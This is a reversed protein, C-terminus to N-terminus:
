LIVLSGDSAIDIYHGPYIRVFREDKGGDLLAQLFDSNGSCETYPLNAEKAVYQAQEQLAKNNINDWVILRASFYAKLWTGEIEMLYSAEDEGFRNLYDAKRADKQELFPIQSYKLWGPSMWFINTHQQSCTQGLLLSICDHAKPLVLISKHSRVNSIARGCVGYCLFIEEVSTEEIEDILNQLSETLASPNDHLSQELFHIIPADKMKSSLFELERRFVECSIVHKM